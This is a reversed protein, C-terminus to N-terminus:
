RLALLSVVTTGVIFCFIQSLYANNNVAYQKHLQLELEERMSRDKNKECKLYLFNDIEKM